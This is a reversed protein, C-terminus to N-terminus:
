IIYCIGKSTLYPANLQEGMSSIADLARPMLEGLVCVADGLAKYHDIFRNNEALIKQREGEPELLDDIAAQGDNSFALNEGNLLLDTM